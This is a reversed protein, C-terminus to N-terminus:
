DLLIVVKGTSKGSESLEHAEVIQDLPFRAAITTQLWGEQLGINTAEVAQRHAEASMNYVFIFRITAALRLLPFFSLTPEPKADSSYTAIVGNEKLVKMTTGLNVGFAVDIVRDVSRESSAGTAEQLRAVQDEKTRDIILDAGAAEAIAAQKDNSITTFM